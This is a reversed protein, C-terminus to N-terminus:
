KIKGWLLGIIEDSRKKLDNFTFDDTVYKYDIYVYKSNDFMDGLYIVAKEIDDYDLDDDDYYGFRGKYKGGTIKVIGFDMEGESYDKKNVM